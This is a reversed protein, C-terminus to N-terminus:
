ILSIANSLIYGDKDGIALRINFGDEMRIGIHSHSIKKYPNINLIISKNESNKKLFIEIDIARDSELREFEMDCWYLNGNILSMADALMITTTEPENMNDTKYHYIKLWVSVGGILDKIYDSIMNAIDKESGGVLTPVGCVSCISVGENIETGCCKCKM